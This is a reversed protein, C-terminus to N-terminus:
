ATKKDQEWYQQKQQENRTAWSTALRRGVEFFQEKEFRMKNTKDNLETWYKIFNIYFSHPYKDPNQNKYAQVKDKFETFRQELPKTKKEKPEMRRVVKLDLLTEALAVNLKRIQTEDLHQGSAFVVRGQHIGFLEM